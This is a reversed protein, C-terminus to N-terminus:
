GGNTGRPHAGRNGARQSNILVGRLIDAARALQPDDGPPEGAEGRVVHARRARLLGTEEEASLTARITPAVGAEHIMQRGPTFYKQTTFRVASGDPLALVSQVSGKGFTTEGVIIARGLDKLAGAVIESGSASAYNVLVAVPYDRRTGARASARYERGPARGETTAIVTGPPVFLGCVDVASGLLGGPNYRLDLVLAEAGEKDLKDLAASLQRATPENFQTVRVYGIRPEGELIRADKVSAVKIAQRTLEFDMIEKTQPRQITLTVNEGVEGRLKEVAEPLSLNDTSLGNIRLIQDGPELGAEFGPSDEMPAVITLRGGEMTVVVGLGGFESRTDEQMGKFDAPEMFQSHPDLEALMGRLAGYTLDRYGVKGEDVFDQRILQMARALVQIHEYPSDEEEARLFGAALVPALMAMVLKRKVGVSHGFGVALAFPRMESFQLRNEWRAPVDRDV